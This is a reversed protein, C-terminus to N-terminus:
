RVTSVFFIGLIETRPSILFFFIITVKIGLSRCAGEYAQHWLHRYSRKSPLSETIVTENRLISRKM